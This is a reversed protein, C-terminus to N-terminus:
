YVDLRTAANIVSRAEALVMCSVLVSYIMLFLGFWNM